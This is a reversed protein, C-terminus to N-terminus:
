RLLNARRLFSLLAGAAVAHARENPELGSRSDVYSGNDPKRQGTTKGTDLVPITTEGLGAAISNSLKDWVLANETSGSSNRFIFVALRAGNRRTDEQLQRLEEVCRSFDAHPQLKFHDSLLKWSFLLPSPASREEWASRDDRWTVGVLVLDPQYRAASLQYFLREEHTGYGAQACNIVEYAKASGSAPSEANLMRELQSSVTADEPIGTGLTYSNGLMLIRTAGSAKPIAYDSGRCGTANFRYNVAYTGPPLAPNVITEDPLSRLQISAL